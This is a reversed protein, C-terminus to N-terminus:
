QPPEQRAEKILTDITDEWTPLARSAKFLSLAEFSDRRLRIWASNPFFRDMAERWIAVPLRFSAEGEWPVQEVRFGTPTKVFVTGSFLFLLPIDGDDLACFYKTAGVEFDYTCPMTLDVETRESFGPAMTSAHGWLVAHLTEGWREPEGFLELLAKEEGPTYRRRRPEIQIQCRLAILHISEGEAEHIQMRFALTPVAAFREARAGVIAFSLKSM